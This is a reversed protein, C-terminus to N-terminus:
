YCGFKQGIDYIVPDDIYKDFTTCAAPRAVAVGAELVLMAMMVVALSLVLFLRRV